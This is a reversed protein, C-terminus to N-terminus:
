AKSSSKKGSKMTTSKAKGGKARANKDASKGGRAKAYKADAAKKGKVKARKEDGKKDKSAVQVKKGGKKDKALKKSSPGDDEDACAVYRKKGKKGKVVCKGGKSREAKAIKKSSPGDDEDACAVYRKKGKKGKVVCKGGKSREAKAIKKSSPGDDEDACAVYRKKGKKGKVVCKGGKSREAKAIKRSSPGDDEDACAVYRKKGKKGKVVCKGGKSRKEKAAKLATMRDDIDAHYKGQPPLKIVEGPSLREIGALANLELIVSVPVKNKVAIKKINDSKKVIYKDYTFLKEDPIKSIREVFVDAKGEPVRLVYEKVNPPTSWRRLEPNLERINEVSTGSCAAAVELDIPHYLTVEDYIFPAHYDLNDFGYKEPRNAIMTAAIYRPVYDKTEQRIQKTDLLEWYDESNSRKLAKSIRGEGANYAALALSWSGFMNYLDKLYRAAAVTSKVPDKREDKWWDIALGYRKATAAIFQWPGAARAKSYAKPNFGSEVIPLFVLEAPMNKEKLIEQMIEIYRGSRELWMSFRPKISQTFIRLSDEIANHAKKDDPDITISLPHKVTEPEDAVPKERDKKAANVTAVPGAEKAPAIVPPRSSEIVPMLDSAKVMVSGSDNESFAPATLFISVSLFVTYKLFGSFHTM